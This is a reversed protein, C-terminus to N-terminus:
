DMLNMLPKTNRQRMESSEGQTQYFHSTPSIETRPKLLVCVARCGHCRASESLSMPPPPPPRPHTRNSIELLFGPSKGTNRPSAPSVHWVGSVGSFESYAFTYTTCNMRCSLDNICHLYTGSSKDIRHFM